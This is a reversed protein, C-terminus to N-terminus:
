SVDQELAFDNSWEQNWETVWMDFSTIQLARYVIPSPRCVVLIGGYKTARQRAAHIANLGSYDIFTLQRLDVVVLSGPPGILHEALGQSTYADLEGRLAFVRRGDFDHSTVGLPDVV